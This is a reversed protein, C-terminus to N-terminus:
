SGETFLHYYAEYKEIYKFVSAIRKREKKYENENDYVSLLYDLCMKCISFAKPADPSRYIIEFVARIKPLAYEIFYKNLSLNLQWAGGKIYLKFTKYDGEFETGEIFFGIKILEYDYNM